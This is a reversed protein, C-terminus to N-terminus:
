GTWFKPSRSTSGSARAPCRWIGLQRKERRLGAAGNIVTVEHMVGRWERLLKTGELLDVDHRPRRGPRSRPGPSWRMSGRRTLRSRSDM